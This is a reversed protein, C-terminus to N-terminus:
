PGNQRDDAQRDRGRAHQSKEAEGLSDAFEHSVRQALDVPNEHHALVRRTRDEAVEGSPQGVRQTPDVANAHHSRFDPLDGGRDLSSARQRSRGYTEKGLLALLSELSQKVGQQDFTLVDGLV